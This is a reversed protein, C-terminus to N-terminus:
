WLYKRGTNMISLMRNYQGISFYPSGCSPTYYSMYNCANPVYYDGNADQKPPTLDCVTPDMGTGPNPDAKTDCILDGATSCNSGDVLEVGTSTEFTHLLGFYHGMEHIITNGGACSKKIFIADRDSTQAPATTSGLPAFGCANASGIIDQVYYVNITNPVDFLTAIEKDEIGMRVNDNRVNPHVYTSCINFTACIDNYSLNLANIANAITADSVNQNGLTDTLIHISLSFTKNICEKVGEFSTGNGQAQSLNFSFLLAFILLFHKM